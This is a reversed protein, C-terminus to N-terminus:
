GPPRRGREVLELIKPLGNELYAAIEMATEHYEQMSGGYPDRIERNEGVMESLLFVRGATEKFEALIAEKHSKEMTLILDARELLEPNVVRSRHKGLDMGWNSMLERGNASARNGDQAWTGASAATWRGSLKKNRVLREFMVGAMPSRCINATCVFLINPMLGLRNSFQIHTRSAERVCM